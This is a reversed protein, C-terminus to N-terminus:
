CLSRPSGKDKKQVLLSEFFSAAEEAKMRHAIMKRVKALFEKWAPDMLGLEKKVRGADFFLNHPVKVQPRGKTRVEETAFFLTNQCVVRISTFAATTALTKDCSTALL